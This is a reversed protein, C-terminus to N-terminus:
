ERYYFNYMLVIKFDIKLKKNLKLLAFDYM